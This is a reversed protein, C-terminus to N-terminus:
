QKVLKCIYFGDQKANPMLQQEEIKEFGLEEIYRSNEENERKNITCTSYILEGGPKVYQSVVDLIERQLKILDEIGESTVNYKIDVKHGMVGLGSCPLDAIVLDAQEIADEDLATADQVKTKINKYGCREINEEILKVKQESLDRAEVVGEGNMLNAINMSKGGPAACVDIVYSEPKDDASTGVLCSSYDQPIIMGAKFVDLRALNDYGSIFIVGDIDSKEVKVGNFELNTIVDDASAHLTNIRVTTADDHAYLGDLIDKTVDEGYQENWMEIIWRPVSYEVSLKDIIDTPLKLNDIERAITRLVGNVFGKLGAFKRKTALKVAENVVASEPVSDMYKLQYVSMRLINRIVPKMKKVKTKSFSDIIYDLEIQREITGQFLRTVFAREQKGLDSHANLTESLVLHSKRSEEVELLMTLTLNRLNINDAM